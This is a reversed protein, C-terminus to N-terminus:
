DLLWKNALAENDIMVKIKEQAKAFTLTSQKLIGDHLFHITITQEPKFHQLQNEFSNITIVSYNITLLIDEAWLGAKQAPSDKEVMTIVIGLENKKYRIGTYVPITAPESILIIGLPAILNELDLPETTYLAPQLFKAVTEGGAEILINEMTKSNLPKSSKGFNQWLKRLIQDLNKDQNRLIADLGLAILSGKLYYSITSNISNGDPQYLKIWADFSAQTVSQQFRGPTSLYRNINETLIDLYEQITIVGSRVLILDDYYATFGEFIWLANTYSEQYYSQPTFEPTIRKVLWLHFYEHSCLGLFKQYDKVPTYNESPLDSRACILATGNKHELGGYNQYAAYLLFLYQEAVPFEGWLKIEYACIKSVDQIIKDLNAKPYGTIAFHHPINNITFSKQIFVGMEVIQDYLEHYNDVHYSGFGQTNITNQTLTTVLQWDSYEKPANFIIECPNNEYDHLQLFVNGGTFFGRTDDLYATRVSVEYAYIEYSITIESEIDRCLWTQKDKKDISINKNNTKAQIWTINKAFDRIKYSGLVWAPLSITLCSESFDTIKCIIYFSHQLPLPHITYSIKM